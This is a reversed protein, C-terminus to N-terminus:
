NGPHPVIRWIATDGINKEGAAVMSGDPSLCGGRQGTGLRVLELQKGTKADWVCWVNHDFIEYGAAFLLKGDSSFMIRVYNDFSDAGTQLEATLPKGTEADWIRVHGTTGTAFKRGDPSFAISLIPFIDDHPKVHAVATEALTSADFIPADDMGVAAIKKGNPSFAARGVDDLDLNDPAVIPKGNSADFLLLMYDDAALVRDGSPSFAVTVVADHLHLLYLLRGTALNWVAATKDKGGGTVIRTGAPDFAAAVIACSHRVQCIQKGTRGDWVCASGDIGATLVKSGDQSLRAVNIKGPQTLPPTLPRFTTADWLRASNGGATLLVKGDASFEATTGGSGQLVAVPPPANSTDDGHLGNAANACSQWYSSGFSLAILLLIGHISLM